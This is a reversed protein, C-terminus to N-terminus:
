QAASLSYDATDKVLTVNVTGGEIDADEKGTIGDDVATINLIGGKIEIDDTFLIGTGLDSTINLTGTGKILLDDVSYIAAADAATSYTLLSGDASNTLSNVSDDMLVIVTDEPSSDIFLPSTGTCTINVGNFFLKVKKDEKATSVIIRGESLTGKLSYSGPESITVIGDSYAAGNGNIATKDDDLVIYTDMPKRTTTSNEATTQSQNLATSQSTTSLIIEQTDPITQETDNDKCSSLLFLASVSMLVAIIIRIAPM